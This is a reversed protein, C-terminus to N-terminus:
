AIHSKNRTKNRGYINLVLDYFTDIRLYNMSRTGINLILLQFVDKYMSFLFQGTIGRDIRFQLRKRTPIRNVTRTGTSEKGSFTTALNFAANKWGRIGPTGLTHDRPGSFLVLDPVITSVLRLILYFFWYVLIFTSFGSNRSGSGWATEVICSSGIIAINILKYSIGCM